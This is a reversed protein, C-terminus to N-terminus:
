SIFYIKNGIEGRRLIYDGPMFVETKLHAIIHLLESVELESFLPVNSVCKQHTLLM